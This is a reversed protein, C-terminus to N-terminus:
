LIIINGGITKIEARLATLHDQIAKLDPDLKIGRDRVFVLAHGVQRFYTPRGPDRGTAKSFLRDEKFTISWPDQRGRHFALDFFRSAHILEKEM